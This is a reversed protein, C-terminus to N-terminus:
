NIWEGEATHNPKRNLVAQCEKQWEAQEAPTLKKFGALLDDAFEHITGYRRITIGVPKKKTM